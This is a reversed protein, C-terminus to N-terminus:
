SACARVSRRRDACSRRPSARSTSPPKRATPSCTGSRRISRATARMANIADLYASPPARKEVAPLFMPKMTEMKLKTTRLRRTCATASARAPHDPLDRIAPHLAMGCGISVATAREIGRALLPDAGIGVILVSACASRVGMDLRVVECTLIILVLSICVAVIATRFRPARGVRRHGVGLLNAIVRIASAALSRRFGPQLVLVASVAAWMGGPKGAWRYAALVVLTAVVAQAAYVCAEAFTERNSERQAQISDLIGM